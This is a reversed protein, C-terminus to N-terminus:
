RSRDERIMKVIDKLSRNALRKRWTRAKLISSEKLLQTEKELLYKVQEQLSRRNNKAMTALATYVEDPVNRISIAKL